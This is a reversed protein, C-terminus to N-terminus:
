FSALMGVVFPFSIAMTLYRATAARRKNILRSLPGFTRPTAVLPFLMELTPVPFFLGSLDVPQHKGQQTLRFPRFGYKEMIANIQANERVYREKSADIMTEVLIHNIPKKSLLEETGQLTAFEAGEIDLRLFKIHQIEHEKCFDDLAYTQVGYGIGNSPRDVEGLCGYGKSIVGPIDYFTMKDKRNSIAAFNLSMNPIQDFDTYKHLM